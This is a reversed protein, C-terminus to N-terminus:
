GQRGQPFHHQAVAVDVWAHKTQEWVSRVPAPFDPDAFAGVAVGIAGPNRGSSWYMSTGCVPCFHTTFTNGLDTTRSFQSTAGAVATKEEPWYAGTGFVSGTRRQCAICHCAIVVSPDGTTTVRVAGCACQAQRQVPSM